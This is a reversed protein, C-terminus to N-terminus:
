QPIDESRAEPEVETSGVEGDLKPMGDQIPQSVEAIESENGEQLRAPYVAGDVLPGVSAGFGAVRKNEDSIDGWGVGGEPFSSLKTCSALVVRVSGNMVPMWTWRGVFLYLILLILGVIAVLLGIGIAGPSHTIYFYLNRETLDSPNTRPINVEVVFFAQSVIWHCVTGSVMTLLTAYYPLQLFRPKRTYQGTSRLDSSVRPCKPRCYYSRWDTELWVRTSLNNALAFCISFWLQPSNVLLVIFSLQSSDLIGGFLTESWLVRFPTGFGSDLCVKFINRTSDLAFYYTTSAYFAIGVSTASAFLFFCTVWGWADTMRWWAIKRNRAVVGGSPHKEYQPGSRTNSRDMLCEAPPIYIETRQIALDMLDGICSYLPQRFHSFYRLCVLILGTKILLSLTVMLLPAWRLTINCQATVPDSFCYEIYSINPNAIPFGHADDHPLYDVINTPATDNVVLIIAEVNINISFQQFFQRCAQGSINTWPQVLGTVGGAVQSQTWIEQELIVSTYSYGLAGNLALHIPLSTILLLIWVVILKTKRRRYLGVPLNSGFLIDGGEPTISNLIDNYTPSSCIQQLYASFSVILSGIINVVLHLGDSVFRLHACNGGFIVVSPLISLGYDPKLADDLSRKISYITIALFLTSLISLIVALRFSYGVYSKGSLRPENPPSENLPPECLPKESPEPPPDQAQSLASPDPSQNTDNNTTAIEAPTSAGTNRSPARSVVDTQSQFRSMIEIIADYDDM